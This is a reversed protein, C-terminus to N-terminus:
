GSPDLRRELCLSTASDVYPGFRPVPAFGHRHYFRIAAHQRDGTELRLVTAGRAAAHEILAALLADAVGAGRHAPVVYFRKLEGAGDALEVGAVGVLRGGTSAGVLHVGAAELQDLSYGFTQDPAYGGEALEATLAAMLPAVRPDRAPVPEVHLDRQDGGVSM